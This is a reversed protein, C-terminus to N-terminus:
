GQWMVTLYRRCFGLADAHTIFRHTAQARITVLWEGTARHKTIVIKRPDRWAALPLPPVGPTM